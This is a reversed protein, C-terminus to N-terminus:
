FTAPDLEDQLEKLPKQIPAETDVTV